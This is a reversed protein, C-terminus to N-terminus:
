HVLVKETVNNKKRLYLGPTTPNSTTKVGQLTFWEERGNEAPILTSVSDQSGAPAVVVTTLTCNTTSFVDFDVKHVNQEGEGATWTNAKLEGETGEYDIPIDRVQSEEFKIEKITYSEPVSVSIVSLQYARMEVTKTNYGYLFRAKQSGQLVNDDDVTLTVPGSTFDVNSIYEGYRNNEDPAPFSPTLTGPQAWNFSYMETEKQAHSFLAVSIVFAAVLIKKM